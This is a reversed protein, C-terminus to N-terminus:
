YLNSLGNAKVTERLRKVQIELKKLHPQLADFDNKVLNGMDQNEKAKENTKM